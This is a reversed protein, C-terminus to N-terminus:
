PSGSLHTVRNRAQRASSRGVRRGGRLLRRITSELVTLSFPKTLFEDAGAALAQEAREVDVGTIALVPLARTRPDARLHRLVAWGDLIPLQLDLIVLDPRIAAVQALATAGDRAHDVAHGAAQLGDQLTEALAEDDDVLLLQAIERPGVRPLLVTFRSGKGEGESEAWITGGHLTVLQKTLALGLGTGQHRKVLASELQTFPQFLRPLDEARIGIGTDSVSIEVLDAVDSTRPARPSTAGAADRVECEPGRVHKATVSIRGGEPTFTVANSLLNLLIQKFRVPDATLTTLAPDVQLTLQLRKAEAQPRIGTLTAALAQPLDMAEPRLEIKGAEVKSLDLLDNILALLHQGSVLINQVYRAQKATLPGFTQDRLIQSFGIISNLPTRLEHAMNALFASKHRSAEEVRDMAEQLQANAAHLERTRAEVTAELQIAAMRQAEYLRGHEIALAAQGAFLQLLELTAPELPRRSHKRDAGLVGIARGQVVLPVIAFVRSRFARIRDHPPQLRLSQPLPLRGDWIIPQRTRYAEALAGGAAGTPVRIGELPEDVGLAAVAQLWEEAPDALLINVRDLHLVDRATQLLYNLRENLGLPEQIQLSSRYLAQLTEEAQKRESIDRMFCHHGIFNGEKNVSKVMLVHKQFSSGDKRVARAEFEAKGEIAMRQYAAIAIRRDEPHVTQAWDMGIMEGPEYGIMRAYIENVHVYRGEPDLRSIGPMANTLAVNTDRLVEEALTREIATALVNGVAELFHIDDQTFTRRRTTHAGLVGFPSERGHIIVSMGSVVGHDRLLASGTFRTETRLDEVIVPENSLLTYGAQSDTGAGVRASGVCGEKWGVGARLVLATGDPLLELVKCFEVELTRAVLAVAEDLLTSLETGALARQGLTAVAAQERARVELAEEARKRETIDRIIGQYGLIGGEPARWSISTALCDMESGDKKRLKVAYDMVSGSREIEQEFRSRAGPDLYLEGINLGIMEDRSYGFLDLAARNVDVVLGERTCFCIADRSNEFLTRYRAESERLAREAMRIRQLNAIMRNVREMETVHGLILDPSEYYLNPCVQDGLIAVPHTRLVERLIAPAFRSRHYQCLALARAGALFTNLRAEYEVLRDCGVEPGLAWTMESTARLGIFGAALADQLAQHLLTIMAEPEFRGGRLYTDRKTLLVLAGRELERPVDVGAAALAAALEATTDADAAYLCCEGRALGAKVFSAVSAMQQAADEYILCLHQGPKLEAIQRALDSDM